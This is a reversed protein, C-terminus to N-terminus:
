EKNDEEYKKLDVGHEEAICILDNLWVSVTHGDYKRHAYLREFIERAVERKVDEDHTVAYGHVELLKKTADSSALFVESKPVVAANELEAFRDIAEGYLHGWIDTYHKEGAIAIYYHGESDKKTYRAM